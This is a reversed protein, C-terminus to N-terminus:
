TQGQDTTYRIVRFNASTIVFGTLALVRNQVRHTHWRQHCSSHNWNKRREPPGTGMGHQQIGPVLNLAWASLGIALFIGVRGQRFSARWTEYVGSCAVCQVRASPVGTSVTLSISLRERGFRDISSGVVMSVAEAAHVPEITQAM